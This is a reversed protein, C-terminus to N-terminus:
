LDSIAVPQQDHQGAAAQDAVRETKLGGVENKVRRAKSKRGRVEPKHVADVLHGLWLWFILCLPSGVAIIWGEALGNVAMFAGIGMMQSAQGPPLFRFRGLWQGTVWLLLIGMGAAGSLGTMSLLGLYSSGPEVTIKGTEDASRGELEAGEALGIGVGWNPHEKFEKLRAHWLMERSNELGKEELMAITESFRETKLITYYGGFAVAAGLPLIVLLGLGFRRWEMLLVVVLGVALAILSVRSTSAICPVMCAAAAASWMLKARKKSTIAKSAAIVVGLGSMPGLTNAYAMVGCFLGVGMASLRLGWWLCSGVGIAIMLMLTTTWAGNRLQRAKHGLLVPGAVLVLLALGAYKPLSIDPEASFWSGPLFALLMLIGAFSFEVGTALMYCIAIGLIAYSAMAMMSELRPIYYILVSNRLIYASVLSLGLVHPLTLWVSFKDGFSPAPARPRRSTKPNEIM